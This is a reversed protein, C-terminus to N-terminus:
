LIEYTPWQQSFPTHGQINPPKAALIFLIQGNM